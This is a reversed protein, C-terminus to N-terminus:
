KVNRKCRNTRTIIYFRGDIDFFQEQVKSERNQQVYAVNPETFCISVQLAIAGNVNFGLFMNNCTKIVVSKKAEKIGEIFATCFWYMSQQPEAQTLKNHSHACQLCSQEPM